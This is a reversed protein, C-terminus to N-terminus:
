NYAELAQETLLGFFLENKLSHLTELDAALRTLDVSLNDTKFTDIDVLVKLVAERTDASPVLTAVTLKAAVAADTPHVLEATSVFGRVKYGSPFIVASTEFLDEMATPLPHEIENIFRVGVRGIRKVGMTAAYHQWLETARASFTEWSDYPKRISFAFGNRRIQVHQLGDATSAIMGISATDARQEVKGGPLMGFVFQQTQLDKKNPFDKKLADYARQTQALDLLADDPVRIELVAETIPPKRLHRPKAM